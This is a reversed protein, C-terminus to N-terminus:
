ESRLWGIIGGAEVPSGDEMAAGLWVGGREARIPSFTKMIEILGVTDGAKVKGGEEIFPPAGPKPSFWVSGDMPANVAAAGPEPASREEVESVDTTTSPAVAALGATLVSLDHM